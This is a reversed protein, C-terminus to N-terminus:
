KLSFLIVTELTCIRYVEMLICNAPQKWYVDQPFCFKSGRPLTLHKAGSFACRFLSRGYDCLFLGQGM